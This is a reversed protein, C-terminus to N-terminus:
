SARVMPLKSRPPPGAAQRSALPWQQFRARMFAIKDGSRRQIESAAPPHRRAACGRRGAAAVVETPPQRTWVDRFSVFYCSIDRFLVFSCPHHGLVRLSEPWTWRRVTRQRANRARVCLAQPPRRARTPSSRGRRRRRRRRRRAASPHGARPRLGASAGGAFAAGSYSPLCRAEAAAAWAARRDACSRSSQCSPGTRCTRRRTGASSSSRPPPLGAPSAM